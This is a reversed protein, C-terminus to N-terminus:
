MNRRYQGGVDYLAGSLQSLTCVKTAKMLADFINERRLAAQQLAALAETAETENRRQYARRSAIADRRVECGPTVRTKRQGAPSPARTSARGAGPASASREVEGISM